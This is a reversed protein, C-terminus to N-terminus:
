YKDAFKDKNEGEPHHDASMVSFVPKKKTNDVSQAPLHARHDCTRGALARM